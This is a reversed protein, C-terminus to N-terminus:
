QSVKRARQQAKRFRVWQRGKLGTAKKARRKPNVVENANRTPEERRKTNKLVVTNENSQPTAALLALGASRYAGLGM